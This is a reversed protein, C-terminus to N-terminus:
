HTYNTFDENIKAMLENAKENKWLKEELSLINSKPM